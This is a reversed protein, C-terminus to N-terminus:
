STTRWTMVIPSHSHIAAALLSPFDQARITGDTSNPRFVSIRILLRALGCAAM